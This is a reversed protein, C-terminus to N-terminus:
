GDGTARRGSDPPPLLGWARALRAILAWGALLGVGLAALVTGWWAADARASVADPAAAGALRVANLLLGAGSAFLVIAVALLVLLGRRVRAEGSDARLWERGIESRAFELFESAEGFRRIQAEVIRGRRERERARDGAYRAALWAVFAVLALISVIYLLEEYPAM